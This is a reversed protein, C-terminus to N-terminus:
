SQKGGFQNRLDKNAQLAEQAAQPRMEIQLDARARAMNTATRDMDLLMDISAGPGFSARVREPEVTQLNAFVIATAWDARAEPTDHPGWVTSNALGPEEEIPSCIEGPPRIGDMFKSIALKFAEFMYPNTRWYFSPKGNADKFNCLLRSLEAVLFCLSRTADPQEKERKARVGIRLLQEAVQSVSQGAARAEAELDQRTQPTIRTSFNSTKSHIPGGPKRGPGAKRKPAKMEVAGRKTM